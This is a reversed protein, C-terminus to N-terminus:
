KNFTSTRPSTLIGNLLTSRRISPRGTGELHTGEFHKSIGNKTDKKNQKQM